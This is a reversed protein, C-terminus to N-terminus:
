LFMVLSERERERECVRVTSATVMCRSSKEARALCGVGAVHVSGISCIGIKRARRAKIVTQRERQRDAEVRMDAPSCAAVASVLSRSHHRVSSRQCLLWDQRVQSFPSWFFLSGPRTSAAVVSSQWVKEPLQLQVVM